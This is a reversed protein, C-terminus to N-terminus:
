TYMLPPPTPSSKCALACACWVCPHARMRASTNGVLHASGVAAGERRLNTVASAETCFHNCAIGDVVIRNLEEPLGRDFARLGAEVHWVPVGAQMSGLASAVTSTVDGVVVLVDPRRESTLFAVLSRMIHATQETPSGPPARLEFTPHLDLQRFFVGAMADGAHQGTDIVEVRLECRTDNQRRRLAHVLPAAKMYNPRAGVIFAISCRAVMARVEGGGVARQSAAVASATLLSALVRFM